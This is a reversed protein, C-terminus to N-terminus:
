YSECTQYEGVGCYAENGSCTIDIPEFASIVTRPEYYYPNLVDGTNLDKVSIKYMEVGEVQVAEVKFDNGYDSGTFAYDRWRSYQNCPHMPIQTADRLNEGVLAYDVRKRWYERHLTPPLDMQSQLYRAQGALGGGYNWNMIESMKPGFTTQSLIRARKELNTLTHGATMLVYKYDGTEKIPIRVRCQLQNCNSIQVRATYPGKVQEWPKKYYSRAVPEVIFDDSNSSSSFSNASSGGGKAVVRFLNCVTNKESKSIELDVETALPPVSFRTFCVFANTRFSIVTIFFTSQFVIWFEKSTIEVPEGGAAPCTYQQAQCLLGLLSGYLFFLLSRM